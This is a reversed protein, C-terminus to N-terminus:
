EKSRSGYRSELVLLVWFILYLTYSMLHQVLEGFFQMFKGILASLFRLFLHSLSFHFRLQETTDSEKWGWPSYGGGDMPNELCSYQLPNGYIYPTSILLTPHDHFSCLNSNLCIQQHLCAYQASEPNMMVAQFTLLDKVTHAKPLQFICCFTAYTLNHQFSM